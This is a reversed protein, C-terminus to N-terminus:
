HIWTHTLAYLFFEICEDTGSLIVLLLSRLLRGFFIKCKHIWYMSSHLLLSNTEVGGNQYYPRQFHSVRLGITSFKTLIM